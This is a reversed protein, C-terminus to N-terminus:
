KARGKNEYEELKDILGFVFTRDEANLKFVDMSASVTLTGGSKLDVSRSTGSSPRPEDGEQEEDEGATDTTKQRPRGPRRRRPVPAAGASDKPQLFRSVPVDVYKVASLFFRVAKELTDGSVGYSERMKDTVEGMTAKTLDLAFLDSYRERLIAEMKKKRAAEDAVALTHLDPTARPKEDNTILGLFKLGTLLQAQVAWSLGPFADRDVVNPIGQALGEIANKFTTWSVYVAGVGNKADAMGAGGVLLIYRERYTGDLGSHSKKKRYGEPARLSRSHAM